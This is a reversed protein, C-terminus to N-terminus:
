PHVLNLALSLAGTGLTLFALGRSLERLCDKMGELISRPLTLLPDLGGGSGDLDRLSDASAAIRAPVGPDWLFTRM